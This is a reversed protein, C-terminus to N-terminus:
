SGEVTRQILNKLNEIKFDVYERNSARETEFMKEIRQLSQGLSDVNKSLTVNLATLTVATTIIVLFIGWGIFTNSTGLNVIDNIKDTM